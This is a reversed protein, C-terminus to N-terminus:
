PVVTESTCGPYLMAAQNYISSDKKFAEWDNMLNSVKDEYQQLLGPEFYKWPPYSLVVGDTTANIQFETRGFKDGWPGPTGLVQGAVVTSGIQVTPNRVHDYDAIFRGDPSQVGIEYDANEAQYEMFIVTGDAAYHLVADMAVHFEFACNDKLVGSQDMLVNKGFEWFPKEDRSDFVIDGARGTSPNYRDINVSLGHLYTPPVSDSSGGCGAMGLAVGLVLAPVILKTCDM